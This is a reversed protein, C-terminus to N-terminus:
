RYFVPRYNKLLSADEKNFVSTVDVLKLNNPFSKHTVIEKNWIENLAPVCIDCLEKLPKTPINGFTGNKKNNLTTNEKLIDRVETNSSYQFIKTLLKCM